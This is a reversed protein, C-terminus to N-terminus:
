AAGVLYGIGHGEAPDAADLRDIWARTVVTWAEESRLWREAETRAPMRRMPRNVAAMDADPEKASVPPYGRKWGLLPIALPKVLRTWTCGSCAPGGGLRAAAALATVVLDLAQIRSDARCAREVLTETSVLSPVTM